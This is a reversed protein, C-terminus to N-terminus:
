VSLSVSLPYTVHFLPLFFAHIHVYVEYSVTSKIEPNFLVSMM